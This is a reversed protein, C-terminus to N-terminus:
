RQLALTLATDLAPGPNRLVARKVTHSVFLGRRHADRGPAGEAVGVIRVSTPPMALPEWRVPVGGATFGVRWGRPTAAPMGGVILAPNRRLLGPLGSAPTEVTLAVPADKVWDAVTERTLEGGHERALRLLGLPDLGALNLGNFNGHRNPDPYRRSAYWLDFADGLRLGTELHLHARDKAFGGKADSRGLVGLPTGAAIRAGARLEPRVSALHAYLTYLSVAGLEHELVVYRGYPGNAHPNVYAVRGGLAASVPDTPEGRRDRSVPRIDVGEHFQMGGSRTMGYAGSEPNGSVTAQLFSEDPARSDKFFPYPTPWVVRVTDAAPEEGAPPAAPAPSPALERSAATEELLFFATAVVICTLAGSIFVARSM